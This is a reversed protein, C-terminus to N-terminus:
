KLFLSKFFGLVPFNGDSFCCTGKDSFKYIDISFERIDGDDYKGVDTSYYLRFMPIAFNKEVSCALKGAYEVYEEKEEDYYKEFFELAETKNKEYLGNCEEDIESPLTLHNDILIEKQNKYLKDLGSQLESNEFGPDSNDFYFASNYGDRYCREARKWSTSICAFARMEKKDEFKKVIQHQNSLIQQKGSGNCDSCQVTGKGFCHPCQGTKIREQGGAYTDALFEEGRGTGGCEDCRLFGKGECTPCAPPQNSDRTAVACIVKQSIKEGWADEMTKQLTDLSIDYDFDYPNRTFDEMEKGDIIETTIKDRVVAVNLFTSALLYGSEIRVNKAIKALNKLARRQGREDSDDNWDKTLKYGEVSITNLWKETDLNQTDFKNEIKYYQQENTIHSTVLKDFFAKTKTKM